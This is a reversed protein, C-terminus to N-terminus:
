QKDAILQNSLKAQSSEILSITLNKHGVDPTAKIPYGMNAFETMLWDVAEVFTGRTSSATTFQWDESLNYNVSFGAVRGWRQIVASLSDKELITWEPRTDIPTIGIRRVPPNNPANMPQALIATSSDTPIALTAPVSVAHATKNPETVTVTKLATAPASNIQQWGYHDEHPSVCASLLFLLSGAAFRCRAPSQLRTFSSHQQLSPM